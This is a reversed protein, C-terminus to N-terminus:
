AGIAQIAAAESQSRSIGQGYEFISAAIGAAPDLDFGQVDDSFASELEIYGSEDSGAVFAADALMQGLFERERPELSETWQSLKGVFASLEAESLTTEAEM